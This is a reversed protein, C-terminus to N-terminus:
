AARLLASRIRALVRDPRETLEKWTIRLLTWGADVLANGKERDANFRDPDTHWAWSDFEIALRAGPFAIDITTRGFPHGVVFGTVGARRLLGILRREAASDARDACAVLLERARAIGYSGVSRCYAEHLAEFRVHRQQLARDLFTAGDDLVAATELVTLAPETVAIGRVMARDLPDLDRRRLRVGPPPRRRLERGITVDIPGEPVRGLMGLWLASAPGSVVSDPGGWLWAARIRAPDTLSHGGVLYVGPHIRLWRGEAVWRTITRAPVGHELAQARSVVGGQTLLLDNWARSM